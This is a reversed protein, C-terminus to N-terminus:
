LTSVHLCSLPLWASSLLVDSPFSTTLHNCLPKQIYPLFFSSWPPSFSSHAYFINIPNPFCLQSQATHNPPNLPACLMHGPMHKSGHSWLRHLFADFEAPFLTGQSLCMYCRLKHRWVSKQNMKKRLKKVRFSHRLDEWICFTRSPFM